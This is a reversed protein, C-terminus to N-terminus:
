QKTSFWGNLPSEKIYKQVEELNYYSKNNLLKCDIKKYTHLEAVIAYMRSISYKLKNALEPATYWGQESIHYNNNQILLEIEGITTNNLIKFNSSKTRTNKNYTVAM